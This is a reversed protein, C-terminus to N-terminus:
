SLVELISNVDTLVQWAGHQKLLEIQSQSEHIGQTVGIPVMGARRAALMDDVTDGLYFGEELSLAALALQIGLPDPKNKHPPVDDMTILVSFHPEMGFRQLVYLSEMRPRGTVIGAKYCYQPHSQITEITPRSLLWKEHRILGDFSEGLYIQQFVGIIVEKEVKKGKEKLICETLDWDNNLGGRNKYAQIEDLEITQKLFFEVTQQVAVRYSRSVDVLVGDMDFLLAKM